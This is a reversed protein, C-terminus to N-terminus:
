RVRLLAGAVPVRHVGARPGAPHRDRRHGSPHLQGPHRVRGTGRRRGHDGHRLGRRARAPSRVPGLHGGPPAAAHHGVVGGVRPHPPPLGRLSSRRGAGHAAAHGAARRRPRAPGAHAGHAPLGPLGRASLIRPADVDPAGVGRAHAAPHDRAGDFPVPHLHVRRRHGGRLPPRDDAERGRFAGSAAGGSGAGPPGLPVQRDRAGRRARADRRQALDHAAALGAMGGADQARLLHAVHAGGFGASPM